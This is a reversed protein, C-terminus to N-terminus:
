RKLPTCKKMMPQTIPPKAIRTALLTELLPRAAGLQKLKIAVNWLPEFKKWGASYCFQRLAYSPDDAHTLSSRVISGWRYFSRYAEDYGAKLQEASMKNPRFVVERTNYRNWDQSIIRGEQRLREHLRTGPYPTLIHFTATTLGMELAWDVTRQFVQPDDEDLGFVFSANIM